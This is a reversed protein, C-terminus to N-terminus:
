KKPVVVSLDKRESHELLLSYEQVRKQFERMKDKPVASDRPFKRGLPDVYRGNEYFEFHLHPGTALGSSGVFGIVDGQSVKKGRRLGRSFASLHKYATAYKSNHRIKVARGGGGRTSIKVVIGSGVSRVPTGRKAAYDVGLHPRNIKLIPHFRRRQFRSSVRSYRLPSKLFKARVSQGKRDFYSNKRGVEPFFVADFTEKSTSYRGILIRGWRYPKEDIFMREIAVAWRDGPRSQRDFDVQWALIDALQYLASPDIGAKEASAWLSSEIVGEFQFINTKIARKHKRVNWGEKQTDFEAVIWHLPSLIIELRKVVDKESSSVLKLKTGPKLHALDHASKASRVLALIKRPEMGHKKLLYFLSTGPAVSIEREFDSSAPVEGNVDEARDDKVTISDATKKLEIVQDRAAGGVGAKQLLLFLALSGALAAWLIKSKLNM